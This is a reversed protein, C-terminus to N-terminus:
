RRAAREQVQKEYLADIAKANSPVRLIRRQSDSTMRDWTRLDMVQTKGDVTIRVGNAAAVPAAEM